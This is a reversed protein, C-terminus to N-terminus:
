RIWEMNPVEESTLILNHHQIFSAWEYFVVRDLAYYIMPQGPAMWTFPQIM